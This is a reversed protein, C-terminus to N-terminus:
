EGAPLDYISDFDNPYEKLIKVSRIAENVFRTQINLILLGTNIASSRFRAVLGENSKCLDEVTNQALGQSTLYKSIEDKLISASYGYERTDAHRHLILIADYPARFLNTTFAILEDHAIAPIGTDQEIKALAEPDVLHRFNDSLLGHTIEHAATINEFDQRSKPDKSKGLADLFGNMNEKFVVPVYSADGQCRSSSGSENVFYTSIDSESYDIKLLDYLAKLVDHTVTELKQTEVKIMYDYEEFHFDENSLFGPEPLFGTQKALEAYLMSKLNLYETSNLKDIDKFCGRMEVLPALTASILSSRFMTAQEKTPNCAAFARGCFNLRMVINSYADKMNDKTPEAEQYLDCAQYVYDAVLAYCDNIDTSGTRIFRGLNLYFQKSDEKSRNMDYAMAFHQSSIFDPEKTSTKAYFDGSRNKTTKPEKSLFVIETTNRPILLDVSM